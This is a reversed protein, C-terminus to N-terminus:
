AARSIRRRPRQWSTSRTSRAPPPSSAAPLCTGCCPRPALRSTSTTRSRSSGRQDGGPAPARRDRRSADAGVAPRGPRVHDRAHEGGAPGRCHGQGGTPGDRHGAAPGPQGGDVHDEAARDRRGTGLHGRGGRLPSPPLVDAVQRGAAEDHARGPRAEPRRGSPRAEARGAGARGRVEGHVDASDQGVAGLYPSPRDKRPDGLRERETRGQQRRLRVRRSLARGLLGDTGQSLPVM